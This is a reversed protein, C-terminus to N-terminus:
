KMLNIIAGNCLIHPLYKQNGMCLEIFLDPLNPKTIEPGNFTHGDVSMDVTLCDISRMNVSVHGVILIMFLYHLSHGTHKGDKM